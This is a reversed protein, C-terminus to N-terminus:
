IKNKISVINYKMTTINKLLMPHIIITDYKCQMFIFYRFYRQKSICRKKNISCISYKITYVYSLILYSKMECKKIINSNNHVLFRENRAISESM